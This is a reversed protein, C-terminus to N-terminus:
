YFFGLFMAFYNLILPRYFRFMFTTLLALKIKFIEIAMVGQLLCRFIFVYNTILVM